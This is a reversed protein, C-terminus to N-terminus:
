AFLFGLVTLITALSLIVFTARTVPSRGCAAGPSCASTAQRRLILFGGGVLCISAAALFV